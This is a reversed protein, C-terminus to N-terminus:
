KNINIEIPRLHFKVLGSDNGHEVKYLDYGISESEIFNKIENSQDRDILYCKYDKNYWGRVAICLELIDRGNLKMINCSTKIKSLKFKKRLATTIVQANKFLLEM